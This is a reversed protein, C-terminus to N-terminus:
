LALLIYAYLTVKTFVLNDFFAQARRSWFVFFSIRQNTMMVDNFYMKQEEDTKHLKNCEEMLAVVIKAVDNVLKVVKILIVLAKYTKYIWKWEM